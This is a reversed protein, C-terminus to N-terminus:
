INRKIPKRGDFSNFIETKLDTKKQRMIACEYGRQERNLFFFDLISGPKDKYLKQIYEQDEKVENM